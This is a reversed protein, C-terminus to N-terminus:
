YIVINEEDKLQEPIIVSVAAPHKSFMMRLDRIARFVEEILENQHRYVTKDHQNNYLEHAPIQRIRRIKRFVSSIYEKFMEYGKPNSSFYNVSFWEELMEISGKSIGNDKKRDIPKILAAERQFTKFNLNNVVIKELASVFEYYNKLSPILIIRYGILEEHERSYEKCFLPPIGISACMENILKIEDLLADFIWYGSVWNGYILNEVFGGNILFATQDRLLFGRWKCQAEYNLKSLDRLFVGIARDCDRPEKRPYAVGFDNVWESHLIDKGAMKCDQVSISSRYGCDLIRYLPNNVYLELVDVAFYLVRLQEAGYALMRTFPNNELINRTKLYKPTPYVAFVEGTLVVRIQDQKSSFCNRRNIYINIDDYDALISVKDEKILSILDSVDYASINNSPIGNFDGSNLYYETIINLLEQKRM